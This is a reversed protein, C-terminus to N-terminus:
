IYLFFRNYKLESEITSTQGHGAYITLSPNLTKFKALSASIQRDSSGILDTRGITRQFLTDGTFIAKEQEYVFCSSGPTHFPTHMVKFVHGELHILEEDEIQTVLGEYTYTQGYLSSGNYRANVLYETDLRHIYVPCRYTEVLLDLGRIHDFHGHTLLIGAVHSYREKIYTLLGVGTQGPDVVICAKGLEGIVYTNSAFQREDYSLTKIM